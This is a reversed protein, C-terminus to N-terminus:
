SDEQKGVDLWYIVSYQFNILILMVYDNLPNVHCKCQSSLPSGSRKGTEAERFYRKGSRNYTSKDQAQM